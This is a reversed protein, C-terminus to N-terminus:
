KANAAASATPSSLRAVASRVQAAEPGNPAEKLYLNYEAGAQAYEHKEELVEGAIYHVVAYGDHPLTHVKQADRLADDPKGDQVEAMVLM